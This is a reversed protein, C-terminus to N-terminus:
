LYQNQVDLGSIDVGCSSADQCKVRVQNDLRIIECGGHERVYLMFIGHNEEGTRIGDRLYFVGDIRLQEFM